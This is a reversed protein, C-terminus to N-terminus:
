QNTGVISRALARHTQVWAMPRSSGRESAISSQLPVGEDLAELTRQSEQRDICDGEVVIGNRKVLGHRRQDLYEEDHTRDGSFALGFDCLKM